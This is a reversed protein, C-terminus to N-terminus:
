NCNAAVDNYNEDYSQACRVTGFTATASGGVHSAGIFTETTNGNTQIVATAGELVSHDLRLSGNSRNLARESSANAARLTTNTYHSTGSNVVAGTATGGDSGDAYFTSSDITGSHANSFLGWNSGGSAGSANAGSATAYVHNMRSRGGSAYVGAHRAGGAGNVRIDVHSLETWENGSSVLVGTSNDSNATGAGSNVIGIQSLQANAGVTVVAADASSVNGTYAGSIITTHPGSGMLHVYQPVTVQEEYTGPMVRVLYHASASPSINSMADAISSYDGGSKAVTVVYEYSVNGTDDTGDAFGAPIGTLGSWPASDAVFAYPVSTLQQRPLTVAGGAMGDISLELYRDPSSFISASLPGSTNASNASTGLQVSLNGDSVAVSMKETWVDTGGTPADYLVFVLDVTGTHPNGSGDTLYGQYNMVEPSAPLLLTNALLRGGGAVAALALTLCLAISLLANKKTM